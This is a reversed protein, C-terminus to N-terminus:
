MMSSCQNDRTVAQMCEGQKHFRCPVFVSYRPRKRISTSLIAKGKEFRTGRSRRRLYLDGLEFSADAHGQAEAQELFHRVTNYDPEHFLGLNFQALANGQNASLTYYNEARSRYERALRTTWQWVMEGKMCFM